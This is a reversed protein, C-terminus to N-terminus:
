THPLGQNPRSVGLQGIRACCSLWCGGDWSSGATTRVSCHRPESGVYVSDASSPDALVSHAYDSPYTDVRTWTDGGDDTRYVGAEYAALWARQRNIPSVTLRAAAHPLSTQPGQRWTKGGDESSVTCVGDHMGVYILRQKQSM